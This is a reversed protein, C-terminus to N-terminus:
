KMILAIATAYNGDHSISLSITPNNHVKGAEASLYAAPRGNEDNIIEIDKWSLEASIGCGLAKSVAEKAAWRGALHVLRLRYGSAHEIERSTFVREIFRKNDILNALRSIKILDIGIGVSSNEAKM